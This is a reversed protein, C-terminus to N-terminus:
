KKEMKEIRSLLDDNAKKLELIYLTLEEMKKVLQINLEGLEVGNEKSVQETTPFNPLHNNRDIFDSLEDLSMLNYDPEFVYDPWNGALKVKLETAIIKGNVALQYNVCKSFDPSNIGVTGSINCNLNPGTTSNPTLNWTNANAPLDGWSGNSYLVQNLNNTQFNSIFGNSNCQLLGAQLGLIKIPQNFEINGSCQIKLHGNPNSITAGTFDTFLNIINNNGQQSINLMGNIGINTFLPNNNINTGNINWAISGSPLDGWSGDGHLVKLNATAGPSNLKKLIGDNNVYVFNFGINGSLDSSRIGGIVDLRTQPIAVGIGVRGLNSLLFFDNENFNPSPCTNHFWATAPEIGCLPAVNGGVCGAYDLKGASNAYVVKYDSATIVEPFCTHSIKLTSNMEITGDTKITMRKENNTKLILDKNDKTGMFQTTTDIGSNGGIKWAIEVDSILEISQSGTCGNVDTVTVSYNGKELSDVSSTTKNNTWSYTYPAAGGSVVTTIIGNKCSFCSTNFGGPFSSPTLNISIPNPQILTIHATDRVLNADAVIVTYTEAILSSRDETFAVGWDYSYPPVGGSVTLDIAGDNGGYCSINFGHHLPSTISVIHLPNPPATLIASSSASCGNEDTVIVSYTGSSLDSISPSENGNSWQYYYSPNGGTVNCNIYGDNGGAQSINYGGLFESTEFSIIFPSPETLTFNWSSSNGNKFLTLTYDGAPASTLNSTTAVLAGASNRWQYTYPKAGMIIPSISGLGGHCQIDYGWGNYEAELFVTPMPDLPGATCISFSVTSLILILLSHILSHTLKFIFKKM